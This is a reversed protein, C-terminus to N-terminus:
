TIPILLSRVLRGKTKRSIKAISMKKKLKAWIMGAKTRRNNGERQFGGDAEIFCGLAKAEILLGSKRKTKGIVKVKPETVEHKESRLKQWKDPHITHGWQSYVKKTIERKQFAESMRTVITTDDAYGVLDLAHADTSPTGQSLVEQRRVLGDRSFVNELNCAEVKVKGAVGANEWAKRVEMTAIHHLINFKVPAAPCGERTGRKNWYPESTGAACRCRYETLADLKGLM